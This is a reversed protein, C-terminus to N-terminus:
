GGDFAALAPEIGVAAVAREVDQFVLFAFEEGPAAEAVVVRTFGVADGGFDADVDAVVHASDADTFDEDAVHQFFGRGLFTNM